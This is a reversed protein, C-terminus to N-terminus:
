GHDGDEDRGDAGFEAIPTKNGKVDLYSGGLGASPSYKRLVLVGGRQFGRDNRRVEFPKDGRDVADFFEPWAKLDHRVSM